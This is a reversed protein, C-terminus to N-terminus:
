KVIGKMGICIQALQQMIEKNIKAQELGVSVPCSSKTSARDQQGWAHNTKITIEMQEAIRLFSQDLFIVGMVTDACSQSKKNIPRYFTEVLADDVIKHDPVSRM